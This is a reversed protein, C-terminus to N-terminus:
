GKLQAFDLTSLKELAANPSLFIFVTKTKREAFGDPFSRICNSEHLAKSFNSYSIGALRRFAQRRSLRLEPSNHRYKPSRSAFNRLTPPFVPLIAQRSPKIASQGHPVRRLLLRGRSPFSELVSSSEHRNSITTFGLTGTKPRFHYGLLFFWRTLTPFM